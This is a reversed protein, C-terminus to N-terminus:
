IRGCDLFLIPCRLDNLRPTVKYMMMSDVSDGRGKIFETVDTLETVDAVYKGLLSSRSLRASGACV